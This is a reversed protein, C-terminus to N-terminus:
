KNKDYSLSFISAEFKNNKSPYIKENVCNNYQKQDAGFKEIKLKGIETSILFYIKFNTQNPDPKPDKQKQNNKEM